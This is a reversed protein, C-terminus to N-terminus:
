GTLLTYIGTAFTVSGIMAIGCGMWFGAKRGYRAFMYGAPVSACMVGIQQIAMPLTNLGNGGTLKYGVLSAMITQGSMVTNMIAQCAFLLWVNKNM